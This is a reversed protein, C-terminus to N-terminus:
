HIGLKAWCFRCFDPNKLDTDSLSNSFRMVCRLDSCHKLGMVHGLEHVAEKLAREHFLKRDSELGYFVQRLRALSILAVEQKQSAEGFVFNLGSEYLDADVVGLRIGGAEKGAVRNLLASALYQDRDPHYAFDIINIPETIDVSIGFIGNLEEALYELLRRDVKKIPVISIM